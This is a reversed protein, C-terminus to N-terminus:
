CSPRRGHYADGLLARIAEREIRRPNWYPKSVAIDTAKDLDSETMGLAELSIPAGLSAAFDFLGQAACDVGLARAARGLAERAAAGNFAAVHPLIVSHTEAHPLNFSGGLTHCLKHHLSMGVTGLCNGCAWAGFLADARAARDQTDAVILPLARGLAAIGQEAVASTIPNADEAYLAEVAHAIANMGSVVSLYSPLGLTLEVDYVVVEPLVKPSRMTSKRGQETQGLIPTAESGAYTTPVIIQPLDTRLALAKCLGTTSGGGLGVLCDAGAATLRQLVRDTVEAPTHMAAESSLGVACDGLAELLRTAATNEHHPACLVFARRCGLASVEDPVRGITGFGFVVRGALSTYEFADM